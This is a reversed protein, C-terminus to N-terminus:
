LCYRKKNKMLHGGGAIATGGAALVIIGAGAAALTKGHLFVKKRSRRGRTCRRQRNPTRHKPDFRDPAASVSRSVPTRTSFPGPQSRGTWPSARHGSRFRDPAADTPQSQGLPLGTEPDFRDPIANSPSAQGVPLGTEPDFLDPAADTPQNNGLPRGTEPDFVRHTRQNHTFRNM